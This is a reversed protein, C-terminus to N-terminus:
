KNEWKPQRKEMFANLGENADYTSMLDELYLKEVLDLKSDFDDGLSLRVAKKTYQLVVTSLNKFRDVFKTFEQEYAESPFIHNVLGLRHAENADIIEGQLLFEYTIKSGVLFPLIVASVPPFVGVKIEPQGFKAKESVLVIDCFLAIECGGGLAAGRVSAITPCKIKNLNRFIDHFEDLMKKAKDGMHDGIDVGASFAKGNHAIILAKLSLDNLFEKLAENVQEMMSINLINLAGNNFTIKGINDHKEILILEEPM